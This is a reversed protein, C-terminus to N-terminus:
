HTLVWADPFINKIETLANSAEHSTEFDGISIRHRGNGEVVNYEAKHKASLEKIALEANKANPSSAVIISYIKKDISKSEIIEVPAVTEKIENNVSIIEEETNEITESAEEAKITIITETVTDKVPTINYVTNDTTQEEEVIIHKSINEKAPIISVSAQMGPEYAMDGIPTVFLFTLIAAVAIAVYRSLDRRKIVIDKQNIESLPKIALPEFGFNYPDDISNDTATFAITGNINMSVTGINGFCIEGKKSLEKKLSNIDKSLQHEAEKYSLNSKAMYESLLLSDDVTIQPNFGITTHPPIFIQEEANYFAPVEYSLFAGVGPIIVCKNYAILRTTHQILNEM